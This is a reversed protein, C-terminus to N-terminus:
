SCPDNRVRATIGNQKLYAALDASSLAYKAQAGDVVAFTNVGVVRGCEDVLPGGSNGPSIEASHGVTHTGGIDQSLSM